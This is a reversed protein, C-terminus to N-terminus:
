KKFFIICTILWVIIFILSVIQIALSWSKPIEDFSAVVTLIIVGVGIFYTLGFIDDNSKPKPETEPSQYPNDSM